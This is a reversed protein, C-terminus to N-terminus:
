RAVRRPRAMVLGVALGRLSLSEANFKVASSSPYRLSMYHILWEGSARRGIGYEPTDKAKEYVDARYDGILTQPRQHRRWDM